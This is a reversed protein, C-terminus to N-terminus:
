TINPYILDNSTYQRLRLRPNTVLALAQLTHALLSAQSDCKMSGITYSLTLSHVEVSGLSSGHIKLSYNYPDFSMPNFLEKYWQFDRPVYIDLIPEYSENSYKFCLNHGFSPDPTLDGIQSGVVLLRSDDHNLQTYTTHWMNNSLKWCPNCSKKLVWKLRLNACLTIPRWLQLLILKPFKSVGLKLTKPCFSMQTNARHGSVSFLILPFTIGEGLDPVHHINHTRTQEHHTWAGFTNWSHVLWNTTQNTCTRIFLQGV